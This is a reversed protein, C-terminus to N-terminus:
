KAEGQMKKICDICLCAGFKAHSGEAHKRISVERGDAGIYTKLTEGCRECRFLVDLQAPAPPPPIQEAEDEVPPPPASYKSDKDWYVDAAVGLAKAAVSIADTLAMKYCEDSTYFTKNEKAVFMSGGTGPIGRSEKGSEPDIYYLKIDVFAAVQQTAEDVALHKDIIEYWWGVGCPGFQETLVKIRWMPSIDTKGKLRGGSIPKKAENPVDRVQNYIRLNEM